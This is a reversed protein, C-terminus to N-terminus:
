IYIYIYLHRYVYMNTRVHRAPGLNLEPQRSRCTELCHRLITASYYINTELCHRLITATSDCYPRATHDCHRLITACYPRLIARLITSSYNMSPDRCTERTSLRALPSMGTKINISQNNNSSSAGPEIRSSPDLLNAALRARPSIQLSECAIIWLGLTRFSNRFGLKRFRRMGQHDERRRTGQVTSKWHHARASLPFGSSEFVSRVARAPRSPERTGSNPAPRGSLLSLLSVLLSLLLTVYCLM